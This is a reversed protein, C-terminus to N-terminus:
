SCRRQWVCMLRSDMKWSVAFAAEEVMQRFPFWPPILCSFFVITQLLIWMLFNSDCFHTRPSHLVNCNSLIHIATKRVILPKWKAGRDDELLFWLGVLLNRPVVPDCSTGLAITSETQCSFYLCSCNCPRFRWFHGISCWTKFQVKREKADYSISQYGKLSM